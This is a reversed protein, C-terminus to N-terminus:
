IGEAEAKLCADLSTLDGTSLLQLSKDIRKNLGTLVKGPGCEVIRKVGANIMTQITEVWRVPMVLQRKLGNRISDVAQYPQVDVNNIVPISPVRITMSALVAALQEAAPSMLQCHSPVSVPLIVAMKAGQSKALATATEIAQKEGAIVIQGVSNFNAPTIVQQTDSAVQQCLLAVAADDLGIIAAMAGTGAPVASQMYHGRAAVLTLADNFDIANACVLATYEGLSHGALMTPQCSSHMQIIRWIAVSATLLAPQTFATQDLKDAPGSSILEWLDYGLVDSAQSFIDSVIPYHSAIDTLMGVSQSGQGPFVIALQGDSM